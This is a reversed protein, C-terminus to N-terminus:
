SAMWFSHLIHLIETPVFAIQQTTQEEQEIFFGEVISKWRVEAKGPIPAQGPRGPYANLPFDSQFVAVSVLLLLPDTFNFQGALDDIRGVSQSVREDMFHTVSGGPDHGTDAVTVPWEPFCPCALGHLSKGLQGQNCSAM